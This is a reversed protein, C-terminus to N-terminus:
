EQGWILPPAAIPMRPKLRKINGPLLWKLNREEFSCPPICHESPTLGLRHYRARLRRRGDGADEALEDPLHCIGLRPNRGQWAESRLHCAVLQLMSLGGEGHTDM